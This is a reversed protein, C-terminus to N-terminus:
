ASSGCRCAALSAALRDLATRAEDTDEYAVRDAMLVFVMPHGQLDTTVGALASVGSLTGTKARVRGLGPPASEAFRDALSGSFGAVPLGTLVARLEPHDTSAAAQLVAALTGPDLRDLRSLGSGDHLVAGDVPVGLGTLAALVGRVGGTFSAPNGTALGVQHALVEAAENDSNTLTEEVVQALPPSDVEALPTADAPAVAPSPAGRVTVGARALAATFAQAAVRAPDEVHGLGDPTRGEDVWLPEVPSVVGEPLYSPPWQRSARPGTFLSTDYSVHVAHVGGDTLARATARALTVVDAAHPYADASPARALLPDGGGVLVVRHGPAQVTRTTFVHEPGLVELAATTTLLKTVSAPTASGDARSFVPTGDLQTVLALVDPGLAPDALGSALARRVKAPSLPADDAEPAAVPRPQGFAPLHLGAPPAVSSPDSGPHAGGAGVAYATVAALLVLVVLAVPLRRLWPDPWHRTDRRAM